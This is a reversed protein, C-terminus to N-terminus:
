VLFRNIDFLLGALDFTPYCKFYFLICILKEEVTKLRPKRGAGTARQKPQKSRRPVEQERVAEGFVEQLEKFAKQNLGTLARLLCEDKMVRKPNLM